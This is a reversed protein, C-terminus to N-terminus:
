HPPTQAPSRRGTSSRAPREPGHHVEIELTKPDLDAHIATLRSWADSVTAAKPELSLHLEVECGGPRSARYVVHAHDTAVALM